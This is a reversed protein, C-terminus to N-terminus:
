RLRSRRVWWVGTLLVLWPVGSVLTVRLGPVFWTTIIIAVLIVLGFMSCVTRWTALDAASSGPRPAAASESTKGKLGPIRRGQTTVIAKPIAPHRRHYALYRLHTAFIQAWAYLGGFISVGFFFVFADGPMVKSVVAAAAMGAASAYLAARPTGAGAVRGFLAPADGSRALSFLMRSTVYLNTNMSSLAATIVVLNMLSAAGPVGVTEFVRVFPSNAPSMERWPTLAILLAMALVYFLILRVVTTRLARPIATEPDKAEGATIGVFETGLYSFM